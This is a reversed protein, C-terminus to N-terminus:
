RAVVTLLYEAPACLTGDTAENHASYLAVLDDRAAEWRGEAELARRTQALPGLVKSLYEVWDAASAGVVPYTRLEFTLGAAGAFLARVHDEDGWLVPPKFGPPLKHHRAVTAFMQGNLSRATFATVAIAGGLRCVRLMEAATEPQDAAFMAGFVSTVRDFSGAAFPLAAADGEVFDIRRGEAAARERAVELLGPVIDLGTVRAGLRAAVLATNGTGTAVDLVEDGAGVHAAAVAVPSVDEITRAVEPYDGAEWTARDSDGGPM